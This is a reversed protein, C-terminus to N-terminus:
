SDTPRPSQTEGSPHAIAQEVTEFVDFIKLVGMHHLLDSTWPSLAALRFRNDKKRARKFGFILLGLGTSDIFSLGALDLVIVTSPTSVLQLLPTRLLSATYFDLDGVVTLVTVGDASTWPLVSLPTVPAKPKKVV